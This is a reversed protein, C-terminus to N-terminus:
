EKHQELQGLVAADLVSVTYDHMLSPHVPQEPLVAHQAGFCSYLHQSLSKTRGNAMYISFIQM